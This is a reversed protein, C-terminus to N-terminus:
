ARRATTLKGAYLAVVSQGGKTLKKMIEKIQSVSRHEHHLVWYQGSRDDGKVSILGNTTVQDVYMMLNKLLHRKPKGDEAFYDVTSLRGGLRDTDEM